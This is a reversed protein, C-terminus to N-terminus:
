YDNVRGCHINALKQPFLMKQTILNMCSTTYTGIANHLWYEINIIKNILFCIYNYVIDFITKYLSVIHALKDDKKKVKFPILMPRIM